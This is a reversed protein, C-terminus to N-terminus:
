LKAIKLLKLITRYFIDRSLLTQKMKPIVTKLYVISPDLKDAIYEFHPGSLVAVGRGVKCWVVAPHPIGDPSNNYRAIIKVNQSTKDDLTFHGGGNFYLYTDPIDKPIIDKSGQDTSSIKTVMSDDTKIQAAHAGAESDYLFGPFTPGICVGPFFGLDRSGCVEFKGGKDFEIRRCALYAGACIGLYSGGGEVYNKINRIGDSQLAQIYGTDYGGGIALLAATRLLDGKRIEEPSILSIKYHGCMTKLSEFLMETAEKSVGKGYYVFINKEMSNCIHRFGVM